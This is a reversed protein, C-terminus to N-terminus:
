DNYYYNNNNNLLQQRVAAMRQGGRETGVSLQLRARGVPRCLPVRGGGRRLALCSGNDTVRLKEPCTREFM